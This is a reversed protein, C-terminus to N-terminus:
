ANEYLAIQERTSNFMGDEFTNVLAKRYWEVTIGVAEHLTFLPRWGLLQRAKSCDLKLFNAEHPAEETSGPQWTGLGWHQIILDTLSATSVAAEDRPGFNWPGAWKAGETYLREGLLLYGALPELVHQWPRVAAPNRLILPEGRSFARVADPVLRDESWDGGGIVNGARVTAIAVRSGAHEFFSRRFAAAVLEASGKSASYPDHGGMPDGERYGWVWERNEYCKDSTVIVVARVSPVNRIVQLLHATGMVNTAFTEIPNQYSRRVLPQAALHFVIEPQCNQIVRGLLEQDCVDGTVSRIREGMRCLSYFSPETVPKRAYGIVNAKMECLWAALWGGKFGTDGTLFVTKNSWFGPTGLAMGGMAGQRQAM